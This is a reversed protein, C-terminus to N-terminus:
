KQYDSILERALQMLFKRKNACFIIHANIAAMNLLYYLVVMPWRRTNRACNYNAAKEDVADVGSKTENYFRIEPKAKEGTARDIKDDHHMSSILIVNKGRRPVYCVLTKNQQFGFMSSNAALLKTNIFKAPLERKNKRVTGVLTLNRDRLM